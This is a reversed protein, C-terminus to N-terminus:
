NFQEIENQAAYIADRSAEQSYMWEGLGNTLYEAYGKLSESENDHNHADTLLAGLQAMFRDLRQAQRALGQDLEVQEAQRELALLYKGTELEALLKGVQAHYERLAKVVEPVRQTVQKRTAAACTHEYGSRVRAAIAENKKHEFTQQDM